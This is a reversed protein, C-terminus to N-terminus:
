LNEREFLGRIEDSPRHGTWKLGHEDNNHALPLHPWGQDCMIEEDNMVVRADCTVHINHSGKLVGCVQCPKDAPAELGWERLGVFRHETM